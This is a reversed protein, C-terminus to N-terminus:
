KSDRARWFGPNQLIGPIIACVGCSLKSHSRIKAAHRISMNDGSQSGLAGLYAAIDVVKFLLDPGPTRPQRM